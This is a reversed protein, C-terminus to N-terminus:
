RRGESVRAIPDPLAIEHLDGPELYRNAKTEIAKARAESYRGARRLSNTYGHEGPAWWASHEESWLVWHSTKM